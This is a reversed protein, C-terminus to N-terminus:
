ALLSHGKPVEALRQILMFLPVDDEGIGLPSLPPASLATPADQGSV